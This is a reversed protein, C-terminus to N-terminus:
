VSERAQLLQEQAVKVGEKAKKVAAQTSGGDWLNWSIKGLLAWDDKDIKSLAASDWSYGGGVSITPMYGSKAVKLAENAVRVSYDAQILEWRYKQAMAIAQDMTIDFAPEPFDKDLPNLKTNMPIRMINNLNAEAIDRANDAAIKSQKANALSTSSTLVDLKAVIGADFQQQVNKLHNAYDNVSMSQVDALKINELYTYYAKVASLKTDAETKYYTLDAINKAYRAQNILGELKGGTWIPLTVNVDQKYSRNNVDGATSVIRTKFQNGTWSYGVTPNKAAAAKSVDAEAEKRQLDAITIDRNNQIATSVAGRLDIDLSSAEPAAADALADGLSKQMLMNNFNVSKDASVQKMQAALAKETISPDTTVRTDSGKAQAGVGFSLAMVISAALIRYTYKNM